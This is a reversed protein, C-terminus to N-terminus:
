EISFMWILSYLLVSMSHKPYLMLTFITDTAAQQVQDGKGSKKGTMTKMWAYLIINM